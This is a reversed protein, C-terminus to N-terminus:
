QELFAPVSRDSHLKGSLNVQPAEMSLQTLSVTTKDGEMQYAGKLSVGKLVLRRGERELMLSPTSVQTEGRFTDHEDAEFHLKLNTRSDGVRFATAPSLQSMVEGLLLGTVVVDGGAKLGRPELLAKMSIAEALNSNCNLDLRVTEPLLTVHAHINQFSFLPQGSGELSVKGNGIEVTGGPLSSGLSALVPKLDEQFTELSFPKSPRKELSKKPLELRLDLAEVRVLGIEVKGRFLPRIAPYVTVSELAGTVKGPISLSGQHFIVCPRPFFSLDVKQFRVQSRTERSIDAMIKEKVPELNIWRPLLLFSIALLILFAGM